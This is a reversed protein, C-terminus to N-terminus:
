RGPVFGRRGREFVKWHVWTNREYRLNGDDSPQEARRGGCNRGHTNRTRGGPRIRLCQFLRLGHLGTRHWYRVTNGRENPSGTPHVPCDVGPFSPSALYQGVPTDSRAYDLTQIPNQVIDTGPLYTLHVCIFSTYGSGILKALQLHYTLTWYIVNRHTEFM